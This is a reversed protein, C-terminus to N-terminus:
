EEEDSEDSEESESVYEDSEYQMEQPNLFLGLDPAEPPAPAPAVAKAPVSTPLASAPHAPLPADLDAGPTAPLPDTAPKPRAPLHAPVILRGASGPLASEGPLPDGPKWGAPM